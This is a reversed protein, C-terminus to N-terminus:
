LNLNIVPFTVWSDKKYLVIETQTSTKADISGQINKRTEKSTLNGFLFECTCSRHLVAKKPYGTAKTFSESSYIIPYHDLAANGILFTIAIVFCAPQKRIWNGSLWSLYVTTLKFTNIDYVAANFVGLPSNILMDLIEIRWLNAICHLWTFSTPNKLGLKM